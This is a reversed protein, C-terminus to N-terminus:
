PRLPEGSAVADLSVALRELPVDTHITLELQTALWDFGCSRLQEPLERRSLPFVGARLLVARAASTFTARAEAQAGERDGADVLRRALAVHEPIRGLKEDSSPWLQEESIIMLARRFVGTDHLICGYRLTWQAYDDGARLKEFLTGADYAVMDIDDPLDRFEPPEGIVHYDLDSIGTRQNRATSGTLAFAACKGVGFRGLLAGTIARQAPTQHLEATARDRALRAAWESDAAWERGVQTPSASATASSSV